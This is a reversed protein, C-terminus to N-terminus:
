RRQSSSSVTARGASFMEVMEPAAMPRAILYGQCMRVGQAFVTALQDMTEIGEAVITLGHEHCIRILGDLVVPDNIWRRDLKAIDISDSLLRDFNSRKLGVDDVAFLFGAARLVSAVETDLDDAEESLELVVSSPHVLAKAAIDCLSEALSPDRISAPSLNLTLLFGDNVLGASRWERLDRMAMMAITRDIERAYRHSLVEDLFEAPMQLSGDTARIRVLAEVASLQTETASHLTVIPQYHVEIRGDSLATEVLRATEPEIMRSKGNAQKEEFMKADADHLLQDLDDGSFATAVGVSCAIPHPGVSTNIPQSFLSRVRHALANITAPDANKLVVTFEDGGWRSILVDGGVLRRLRNAVAGLVEDGVAHGWLDNVLKFDDLDLFLLSVSQDDNSQLSERIMATMHQRNFINTLDDHTAQYRLRREADNRMRIDFELDAALRDIGRAVEGVEDQQRDDIRTTYDGAAVRDAAEATESIRRVLPRVLLAWGFLLVVIALLLGLLVLTRMSQSISFPEDSDTRLVLGWGTSEITQGAFVSEVGRYDVGRSIFGAPSALARVLPADPDVPGFKGFGDSDFRLDSIYQAQGDPGSQVLFAESTRGFGEHVGLLSVIPAIGVESLLAGVIRGDPNTIPTVLGVRDDGPGVRFVSGYEAGGGALVRDLLGVRTPEWVYGSSQGLPEGDLGVVRAEILSTGAGLSADRIANAVQELPQGSTSDIADFGAQGGIIEGDGLEGDRAQQVQETFLQVYTARSLREADTTYEALQQTVRGSELRQLHTMEEVVREAVRSEVISTSIVAISLVPAVAILLWTFIRGRIGNTM